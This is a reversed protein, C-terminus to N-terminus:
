GIALLVIALYLSNSSIGTALIRLFIYIFKQVENIFFEKGKRFSNKIIAIKNIKSIFEM